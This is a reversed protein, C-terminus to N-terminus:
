FSVPIFHKQPNAKGSPNEETITLTGGSTSPKSLTIVATYTLPNPTTWEQATKLIGTGIVTGLGDTITVTGAQAEFVNWHCEGRNDITVKITLPSVVKVNDKPSLVSIADCRKIVTTKSVPKENTRTPTPGSTPVIDATKKNQRSSFYLAVPLLIVILIVIIIVAKKM